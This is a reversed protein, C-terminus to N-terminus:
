FFHPSYSNIQVKTAFLVVIIGFISSYIVAFIM